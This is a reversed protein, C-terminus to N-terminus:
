FMWGERVEAESTWLGVHSIKKTLNEKEEMAKKEKLLREKEKREQQEKRRREIEM